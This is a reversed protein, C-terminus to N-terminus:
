VGSQYGTLIGRSPLNELRAMENKIILGTLLLIIWEPLLFWLKRGTCNIKNHLLEFKLKLKHPQIFVNNQDKEPPGM